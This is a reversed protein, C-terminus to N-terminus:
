LVEFLWIIVQDTKNYSVLDTNNRLDEIDITPLGSIM